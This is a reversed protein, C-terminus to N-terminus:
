LLSRHLPIVCGQRGRKASNSNSVLIMIDYNLSENKAVQLDFFLLVKRELTAELLFDCTLPLPLPLCCSCILWQSLPPCQKYSTIFPRRCPPRACIASRSSVMCRCIPCHLIVITFAREGSNCPTGNSKYSICCGKEPMTFHPTCFILCQIPLALSPFTYEPNPRQRRIWM